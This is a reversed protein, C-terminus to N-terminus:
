VAKFDDALALSIGEPQPIEDPHFVASNDKITVVIGDIKGIVAIEVIHFKIHFVVPIADGHSFVGAEAARGMKGCYLPGIDRDPLVAQEGAVQMKTGSIGVADKVRLAPAYIGRFIDGDIIVDPQAGLDSAKFADM